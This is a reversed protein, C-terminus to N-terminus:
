KYLEINGNWTGYATIGDLNTLRGEIIKFYINNVCHENDSFNFEIDGYFDSENSLICHSKWKYFGNILDLEKINEIHLNINKLTRKKNAFITTINNIYIETLTDCKNENTTLITHKIKNGSKYHVTFPKTIDIINNIMYGDFTFTNYIQLIKISENQETTVSINNSTHRGFINGM